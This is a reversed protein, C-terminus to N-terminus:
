IRGKLLAAAILVWGLVAKSHDSLSAKAQFSLTQVLAWPSPPQKIVIQLPLGDFIMLYYTYYIQPSLWIFLFFIGFSILLRIPMSKQKIFQFCIFICIASLLVSVTTLGIQQVTTLTNFSDDTYM